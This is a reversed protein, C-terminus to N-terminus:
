RGDGGSSRQRRARGQQEHLLLGHLGSPSSRAGGQEGRRHAVRNGRAKVCWDRYPLHTREHEDREQKSVRQPPRMRGPVVGEEGEESVIESQVEEEGAVMDFGLGGNADETVEAHEVEPDGLM